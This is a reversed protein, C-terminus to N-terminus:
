IEFTWPANESGDGSVITLNEIKLTVLPRCYCSSVELSSYDNSDCFFYAKINNSNAYHVYFDSGASTLNVCPSALWNNTTGLLTGYTESSFKENDLSKWMLNDASYYTQKLVIPNTISAMMGNKNITTGDSETYFTGSTYGSDSNIEKNTKGYDSYNNRITLLNTSVEELDEIKLSRVDDSGVGYKSNAYLDCMNEIIDTSNVFGTSGMMAFNNLPTKSILVITGDANKKWVRWKTTDQATLSIGESSQIGTTNSQFKYSNSTDAEYKVYDGVQIQSNVVNENPVQEENLDDENSVNVIDDNKQNNNVNSTIKSPSNSKQTSNGGSIAIIAFIVIVAIVIIWGKKSTGKDNNEQM